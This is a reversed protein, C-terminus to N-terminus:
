FFIKQKKKTPTSNLKLKNSNQYQVHKNKWILIAFVVFGGIIQFFNCFLNNPPKWLNRFM